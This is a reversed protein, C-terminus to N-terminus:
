GFCVGKFGAPLTGGNAARYSALNITIANGSTFTISDPIVQLANQDQLATDVVVNTTLGFNHTVTFNDSGAETLTFRFEQVSGAPTAWTLVGSGNNQLFTSAGGQATPWTMAYSTVAAPAKIDVTTADDCVFRLRSARNDTATRDIQVFGDNALVSGRGGRLVVNGGVTGGAGFAAGAVTVTGPLGTTGPAGGTITVAGGASTTGGGQGGDISVAGGVQTTGRGRGGRM